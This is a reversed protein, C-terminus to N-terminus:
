RRRARLQRNKERNGCVAMECWSGQQNRSRDFFAWRCDPNACVKLREWSGDEQARRVILLLEFLGDALDQHRAGALEIAGSDSVTLRARHADTVNRLPLLRQASAHPDDHDRELLWRISERVERALELDSSALQAAPDLLRADVLWGRAGDPDVLADTGEELDLTNVFGQVILLPMPAPKQESGPFWSPVASM